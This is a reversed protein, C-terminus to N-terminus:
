IISFFLWDLISFFILFYSLAYTLGIKLSPINLKLLGLSSIPLGVRLDTSIKLAFMKFWLTFLDPLFPYVFGRNEFWDSM